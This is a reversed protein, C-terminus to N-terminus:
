RYFIFFIVKMVKKFLKSAEDEPPLVETEHHQNNADRKLPGIGKIKISYKTFGKKSEGKKLAQKKQTKPFFGLGRVSSIMVM